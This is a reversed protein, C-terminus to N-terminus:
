AVERVSIQKGRSAPQSEPRKQEVRVNVREHVQIRGAAPSDSESERYEAGLIEEDSNNDRGIYTVTTTGRIGLKPNAGAFGRGSEIDSESTSINKLNISGPNNNDNGTGHKYYGKSQSKSSGTTSTAGKFRRILPRLVPVGACVM